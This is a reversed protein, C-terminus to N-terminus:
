QLLSAKRRRKNSRPRLTETHSYLRHGLSILLQRVRRHVVTTGLHRTLNVKPPIGLRPEQNYRGRVHAVANPPLSSDGVVAQPCQTPCEVHRPPINYFSSHVDEDHTAPIHSREVQRDWPSYTSHGSSSSPARVLPEMFVPDQSSSSPPHTHPDADRTNRQSRPSKADSKSESTGRTKSNDGAKDPIYKFILESCKELQQERTSSQRRRKIVGRPSPRYKYNPHRLSHEQKMKKALDNWVKKEEPALERWCIAVLLSLTQQKSEVHSPIIGKSLFDSRFLMFANPPRPIHGMSRGPGHNKGKTPVPATSASYCSMPYTLHPYAPVPSASPVM